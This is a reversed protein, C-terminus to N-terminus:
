ATTELNEMPRNDRHNGNDTRKLNETPPNDSPKGNTAQRWTKILFQTGIDPNISPLTLNFVYSVVVLYFGLTRPFWPDMSGYLWLVMYGHFWIAMSGYLWLVMYGHFWLVM